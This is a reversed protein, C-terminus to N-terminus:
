LIPVDEVLRKIATDLDTKTYFSWLPNYRDEAFPVYIRSDRKFLIKGIQDIYPQDSQSQPDFNLSSGFLKKFINRLLTFLDPEIIGTHIPRRELESVVFTFTPHAFLLVKESAPIVGELVKKQYVAWAADVAGMPCVATVGNKTNTHFLNGVRQIHRIVGATDLQSDDIM